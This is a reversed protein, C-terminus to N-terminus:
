DGMENYYGFLAFLGDRSRWSLNNKKVYEEIARRRKSLVKLVNRKGKRLKQAAQGAPAYYFFEDIVYKVEDTKGMGPIAANGTTQVRSERRLLLNMEGQTIVEFFGNRLTEDSTLFLHPIFIKNDIAVGKMMTRHLARVEGKLLIQMEDKQANYRVKIRYKENEKDLLIGDQFEESMFVSGAVEYTNRNNLAFYPLNEGDGQQFSLERFANEFNEREARQAWLGNLALLLLLTLLHISKKM